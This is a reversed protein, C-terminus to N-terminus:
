RSNQRPQAVPRQPQPQPAPRQPQAPRPQAQPQPQPHNEEVRDPEDSGEDPLLGMNVLMYKLGQAVIKPVGKDDTGKSTDVWVATHVTNGVYIHFRVMAQTIVLTGHTQTIARVVEPLIQVGRERLQTLLRRVQEITYYRYGGYGGSSKVIGQPEGIDIGTVAERLAAMFEPSPPAPMTEVGLALLGENERVPKGAVVPIYEAEQAQAKQIATM